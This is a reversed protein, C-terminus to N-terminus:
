AGAAGTRPRTLWRGKLKMTTQELLDYATVLAETMDDLLGALYDDPWTQYVALCEDYQQEIKSIQRQLVVCDVELDDLTRM